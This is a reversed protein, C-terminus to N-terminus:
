STRFLNGSPRDNRGGGLLCTFSAVEIQEVYAARQRSKQCLAAPPTSAIRMVRHRALLPAAAHIALFKCSMRPSMGNGSCKHRSSSGCVASTARCPSTWLTVSSRCISNSRGAQPLRCWPFRVRAAVTGTTAPTMALAAVKRNTCRCHFRAISVPCGDSPRNRFIAQGAAIGPAARNRAHRLARAARVTSGREASHRVSAVNTGYRHRTECNFSSASSNASRQAACDSRHRQM